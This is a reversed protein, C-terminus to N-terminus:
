LLAGFVKKLVSSGAGVPDNRLKREEEGIVQFLGDMAKQTVYGDLDSEKQDIVGLSAAKGAIKGYLEGVQLKSTQAKVIPLFKNMLAETSTRQFYQTVSNDGGSLIGKADQVSMKRIADSLIPRAEAVANEAAHNMTEVLQDTQKGMGLMRLGSQAKDLAGPLKIKVQDNALFGGPKGLSAVAIDAGKALAERVGATADNNSIADLAGAQAAFACLSLIAALFQRKM